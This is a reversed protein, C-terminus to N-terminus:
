LMISDGHHIDQLCKATYKFLKLLKYKYKNIAYHSGWPTYRTFM